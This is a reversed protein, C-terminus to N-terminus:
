LMGKALGLSNYLTHAWLVGGFAIVSKAFSYGAFLSAAHNPYSLVIYAFISQLIIVFGGTSFVIGITSISWHMGPRSTWGFFFIGAPIFVSAFLAPLLCSEPLLDKGARSPANLGVAIMIVIANCLLFLGTHGKIM